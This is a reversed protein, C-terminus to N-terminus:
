VYWAANHQYGGVGALLLPTHALFSPNTICRWWWLLLLLFLLLLLLLLVMFILLSTVCSKRWDKKANKGRPQPAKWRKSHNEQSFRECTNPILIRVERRLNRFAKPKLNMVCCAFIGKREPNLLPTLCHKKGYKRMHKACFITTRKLHRGKPVKKCSKLRAQFSAFKRGEFSQSPVHFM